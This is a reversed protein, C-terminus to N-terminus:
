CISTYLVKVSVRVLGTLGYSRASVLVINASRCISDLKLLSSEPLQLLSFLTNTVQKLDGCLMCIDAWFYALLCVVSVLFVRSADVNGFNHSFMFILYERQGV